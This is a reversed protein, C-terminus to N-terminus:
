RRTHPLHEGAGACAVTTFLEPTLGYQRLLAASLEAAVADAADKRVLTVTCGGFGAGTLRAGFVGPQRRAVDVLLDLEGCSVEYDDRLSDHSAFMLRGFAELDGTRLAQAAQVTRANETVVHRCRSLVRPPLRAHNRELTPLDVDRLARIGSPAGGLLEVGRRCEGRRANYESSALEHKVRSNCVLVTADALDASVPTAELSRCDILLAHGRRALVACYQDMIGCLTGVYQHEAAQAVRALEVSELSRGSVSLLALGVAVELAASSSLGSGLPVDSQILLQAGGLRHGREELVRAVGEVYDLWNGRRPAAPADLDFVSAQDLALSRVRVRRGSRAAAAVLTRREIALPLVFGDNYDTHEGILNVRGPASFIRPEQDYLRRFETRLAEAAEGHGLREPAQGAVEGGGCGQRDQVAVEDGGCRQANHGAVDDGGRPEVGDARGMGRNHWKAEPHAFRLRIRTEQGSCTSDVPLSPSEPAIPAPTEALGSPRSDGVLVDGEDPADRDRRRLLDMAVGALDDGQGDEAPDMVVVARGRSARRIFWPALV